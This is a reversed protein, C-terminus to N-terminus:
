KLKGGHFFFRQLTRTCHPYIQRMKDQFLKLLVERRDYYSRPTGIALFVTGYGETEGPERGPSPLPELCSVYYDAYIHVELNEDIANWDDRKWADPDDRWDEGM